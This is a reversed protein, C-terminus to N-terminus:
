NKNSSVLPVPLPSRVHLDRQPFPIEVGYERFKKVIAINMESRIIHHRKPHSIWVRLDMNWSSDGFSRFIVDPLPKQMVKPHEEAVEQLCRLVTDLDSDYSVGVKINIRIKTDGHSWNVM